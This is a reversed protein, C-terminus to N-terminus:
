PIYESLQGGIFLCPGEYTKGKLNKPFSTIYKFHKILIDLNFLWGIKGDHKVAINSVVATMTIDDAVAQRLQKRAERRAKAPYKINEFTVNKIAELIQMAEKFEKPTSM